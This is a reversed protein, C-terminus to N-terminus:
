KFQELVKKAAAQEAKRRSGGTANVSQELSEVCCSVTFTQQHSKGEIKVVEYEPVARGRSQLFEQLETKPDKNARELNINKFEDAFLRMILKRVQLEDSDVFVAGILAEFADALISSRRFGGSKLEGAGLKLYQGLELERAKNALNDGKVLAARLRSLQGEDINPFKHYIVDSIIFSLIADGLFELRENNGKGVSRHTLAQQLYKIDKFQYDIQKCLLSLEPIM